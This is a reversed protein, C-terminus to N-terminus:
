ARGSRTKKNQKHKMDPPNVPITLAAVGQPPITIGNTGLASLDVTTPLMVSANFIAENERPSPWQPAGMEEWARRPNTHDDDIRWLTVPTPAKGPRDSSLNGLMVTVTCSEIELGRAAQNYVLLLVHTQNRSALAGVTKTCTTPAPGASNESVLASKASTASTASTAKLEVRLRTKGMGHLLQMLRYAPKPVGFPNILGFNGGFSANVVPFGEEEMVDNLAWYSLLTVNYPNGPETIETYARALYAAAEYTDHCTGTTSNQRGTKYSSGFETILLPMEAAAERVLALRERIEAVDNIHHDFPTSSYVHSSVYDLPVSNNRCYARLAEIYPGEGAGVATAPGGVRLMPSVRKIARAAEAYLHFYEAQTGAWFNINPENWVEFYRRVVRTATCRALGRRVPSM